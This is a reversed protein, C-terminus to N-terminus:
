WLLFFLWSNKEELKNILIICAKLTLGQSTISSQWIFQRVMPSKWYNLLQIRINLTFEFNKVYRKRIFRVILINLIYNKKHNFSVNMMVQPRSIVTVFYNVLKQEVLLCNSYLLTLLIMVTSLIQISKSFFVVKSSLIGIYSKIITPILRHLFFHKVQLLNHPLCIYKCM